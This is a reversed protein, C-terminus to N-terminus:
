HGRIDWLFDEATLAVSVLSVGVMAWGVPGTATWFLNAAIRAQNFLIIARQVKRMGDDINEPLGMRRAINMSGMMVSQYSRWEKRANELKRELQDLRSTVEEINSPM